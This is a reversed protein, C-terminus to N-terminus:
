VRIVCREYSFGRPPGRLVPAVVTALGGVLQWRPDVLSGVFLLAVAVSVAIASVFVCLGVTLMVAPRAEDDVVTHTALPEPSVAEFGHMLLLGAVVTLVLLTSVLLGLRRRM